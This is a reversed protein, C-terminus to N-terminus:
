PIGPPPTLVNPASPAPGGLCWDISQATYTINYVTTTVAAVAGAAFILSVVPMEITGGALFAFGAGTFMTDFESGVTYAAYGCKLAADFANEARTAL